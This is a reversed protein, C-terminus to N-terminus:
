DAKGEVPEKPPEKPAKKAAKKPVKKKPAEPPPEPAVESAGILKEILCGNGLIVTLEGPTVDIPVGPLLRLAGERSRLVGAPVELDIPSKVRPIIRIM